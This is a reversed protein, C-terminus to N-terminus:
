LVFVDALVSLDYQMLRLSAKWGCDQLLGCDHSMMRTVVMEQPWYIAGLMYPLRQVVAQIIEPGFREPILAKEACFHTDKAHVQM